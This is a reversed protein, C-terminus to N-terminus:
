VMADEIIHLGPMTPDHDHGDIKCLHNLTIALSKEALALRERVSCVLQKDPTPLVTDLDLADLREAFKYISRIYLKALFFLDYFKEKSRSGSRYRYGVMGLEEDIATYSSIKQPDLHAEQSYPGNMESSGPILDNLRGVQKTVKTREIEQRDKGMISYSWAIQEYILRLIPSSEIYYGNRLLIICSEFSARLRGMANTYVFCDFGSCNPAFEKLLETLQVITTMLVDVCYDRQTAEDPSFNLEDTEELYASINEFHFDQHIYATLALHFQRKLAPSANSPLAYPIDYLLHPILKYAENERIKNM